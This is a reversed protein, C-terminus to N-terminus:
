TMVYFRNGTLLECAKDFDANVYNWVRREPKYSTTLFELSETKDWNLFPWLQQSSACQQVWNAPFCWLAPCPWYTNEMSLLIYLSLLWKLSASAIWCMKFNPTCLIFSFYEITSACFIFLWLIYATSSPPRYFTAICFKHNCFTFSMPLNDKALPLPVISADHALQTKAYVLM